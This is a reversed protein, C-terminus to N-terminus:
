SRGRSRTSWATPICWRAATSRRSWADAGCRATPRSTCGRRPPWGATRRGAWRSGPRRPRARPVLQGASTVGAGAEWGIREARACCRRWGSTTWTACGSSSRTRARRRPWSTWTRSAPSTTRRRPWRGTPARRGAAVGVAPLTLRQHPIRYPPAIGVAGANLNTFSWATLEGDAAPRARRRRHGRGAAPLLGPVGGAPDVARAGAGGAARALRAAELAVVSGHKGGFGGGYDPVVSRCRSARCRRARRGARRAGPVPDLHRDLVTLRGDDRWHALASRPEMPCTRSTPPTTGPPWASRGPACRPARRRRAGAALPRDGTATRRTRGCGPRWAPPPSRSRSTGPPPRGARRSRTWRRGPLRRSDPAVVGVFSGDAVVTVGAAAARRPPTPASWRRSRAVAAAAGRRAAHRAPAPRGPVAQRRDGRDAAGRQGPRGAPARGPGAVRWDAPRTVAADAPVRECRRQGAVLEGYSVSPAGDPGAICGTARLTLRETPLGFRDAAAEM